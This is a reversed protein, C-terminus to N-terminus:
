RTEERPEDAPGPHRAPGPQEPPWGLGPAPTPSPDPWGLGAPTADSGARDSPTSM